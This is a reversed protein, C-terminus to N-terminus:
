PRQFTITMRTRMTVPVGDKLPSAFRWNSIAQCAAYGFASDTASSTRPLQARGTEDVFFEVVAEGLKINDPLWTPFLAEIRRLSVLPQDLDHEDPFKANLGELRLRKLIAAASNSILADGNTTDFVLTIQLQTPPPNDKTRTFTFLVTDTMALAAGKFEQKTESKWEVKSIRGNPAIECVGTVTGKENELLPGFPYVVRSGTSVRIEARPEGKMPTFIPRRNDKLKFIIPVQMRTNVTQGNKTGPKFKWKMVADMAPINFGEHTTRVVTAKRTNGQKDVIFEVIVTGETNTKRLEHPYAPQARFKPIPSTSKTEAYSSQPLLGCLLGLALSLYRFHSAKM